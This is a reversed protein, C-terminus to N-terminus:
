AHPELTLVFVLENPISAEVVSSVRGSEDVLRELRQRYARERADARGGLSRTAFSVVAHRVRLGRLLRGAVDPDQRDLTTVLKLLLAIDAAEEPVAAVLDGARVIHPQGVLALFESVAGLLRADAEEALYIADAIGMWPLAVPNLGCGLDLLRGPVGTHEWVGTYFRDLHPLRERTSAHARLVGECAARFSPEALDGHWTAELDALSTSGRFAGVVQHLRRKVRKVADDANRARPLEEAALRGVLAPDVDRYRSSRRVREVIEATM